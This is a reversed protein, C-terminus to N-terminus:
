GGRIGLEVGEAFETLGLRHRDGIAEDPSAIAAGALGTARALADAEDCASRARDLTRRAQSLLVWSGDPLLDALVPMMEEFLLPAVREMGEFVLGESLRDLADRLPGKHHPLARRARDRVDTDPVLERVAHVEAGTAPRTSTQTSPSFERMSEIDNGFFELRVPRHATGPFVDLIGGRVAFEGRHVVLDTREYGLETLREALVDTAIDTGPELTLPDREGLTPVLRQLAAVVPAVLVFLGTAHRARHAAEARRSAIDAGPSIGEVPLAEWAPFLTVADDGLFARAATALREGEKPGPALLLVPSDAAKALGAAVYAHGAPDAQATRPGAAALLGQFAESEVLPKLLKEM